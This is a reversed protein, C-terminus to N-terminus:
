GSGGGLAAPFQQLLALFNELPQGDDVYVPILLKNPSLLEGIVGQGRYLRQRTRQGYEV